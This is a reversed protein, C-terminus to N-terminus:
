ITDPGVHMQVHTAISVAASIHGKEVEWRRQQTKNAQYRAVRTRTNNKVLTNMAKQQIQLAKNQNEIAATSSRLEEIAHQIEYDNLGRILSLDQTSALTEAQGTKSLTAYRVGNTGFGCPEPLM